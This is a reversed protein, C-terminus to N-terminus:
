LGSCKTVCEELKTRLRCARISLANATLKFREALTRRNEIKARQEGLYYQIILERNDPDLKDLCRELCDLRKEKVEQEEEM